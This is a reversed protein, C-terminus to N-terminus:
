QQTLILPGNKTIAITHEYHAALSGDITRATWKDKEVYMKFSGTTIMPEITFVMGEKLRFGKGPTGIHMFMPNEHISQGIGHGFLDRVVSFGANEAHSQIAHTIDGIRNGVLAKRIGLDLCQKTITLLRRAKASINGIPYTWASDALWGNRNVVIDITVIDGSKLSKNNPFGHAIVDNVSACTAFPFGRYGKQEPSANHKRLFKEVFSDIELTTIGPKIIKSIERHCAALIKGAEKMLTIERETKQIIM